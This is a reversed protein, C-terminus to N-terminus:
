QIPKRGRTAIFLPSLAKFASNRAQEFAEEAQESTVVGADIFAPVAWELATFLWESSPTGGHMTTGGIDTHVDFLGRNIFAAMQKRGWEGDYGQQQTSANRMGLVLTRLPEPLPQADFLIWDTEEAIVWGGPKAAARM